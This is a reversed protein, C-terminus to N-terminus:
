SRNSRSYLLVTLWELSPSMSVNKRTAGACYQSVLLVYTMVLVLEAIASLSSPMLEASTLKADVLALLVFSLDVAMWCSQSINMKITRIYVTALATWVICDLQAVTSCSRQHLRHHFSKGGHWVLM